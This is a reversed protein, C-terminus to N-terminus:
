TVGGTCLHYVELQNDVIAIGRLRRAVTSQAVQKLFFSPLRGKLTLVGDAYRCEVNRVSLYGSRRLEGQATREIALRRRTGEAADSSRATETLISM